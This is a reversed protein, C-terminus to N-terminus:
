PVAKNISDIGHRNASSDLFWCPVRDLFSWIIQHQIVICWLSLLTTSLVASASLTLTSITLKVPCAFSFDPCVGYGMLWDPPAAKSIFSRGAWYRSFIAKGGNYGAWNCCLATSCICWSTQSRRLEFCIGLGSTHLRKSCSLLGCNGVIFCTCRIFSAADISAHWLSACRDLTSFWWAHAPALLTKFISCM